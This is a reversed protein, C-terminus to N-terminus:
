CVATMITWAVFVKAVEEGEKLFISDGEIFDLYFAHQEYKKLDM